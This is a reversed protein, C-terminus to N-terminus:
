FGLNLSRLYKVSDAIRGSYLDWSTEENKIGELELTYPGRFGKSGLMEIVRRFPVVGEGLAPFHWAEYVGNTEKLHVSSVWPLIKELEQDATLGRNYYYINGTDFNIRVSPHDVAKMTALGVEANTVLDPHTELVIVVDHRAARDGARQLLSCAEQEPLEGRKLSLFLPGAGLAAAIRCQEDVDKVFVPGSNLDAKGIVTLPSIGFTAWWELTAGIEDASPVPIEVWRIGHEQLDSAVRDLDGACAGYCSPRCCLNLSNTKNGAMM